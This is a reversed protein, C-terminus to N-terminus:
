PALAIILSHHYAASASDPAQRGSSSSLAGIRHSSSLANRSVHHKNPHHQRHLRSSSRHHWAICALSILARAARHAIRTSRSSSARYSRHRSRHHASLTIRAILALRRASCPARLAGAALLAVINFFLSSRSFINRFIRSSRHHARSASILSPQARSAVANIGGLHAIFARAGIRLM